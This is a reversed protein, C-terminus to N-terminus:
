NEEEENNDEPQYELQIEENQLWTVSEDGARGYGSKSLEIYAFFVQCATISNMGCYVHGVNGVIVENM